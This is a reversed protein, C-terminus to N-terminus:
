VCFKVSEPYQIYLIDTKFFLLSSVFFLTSATQVSVCLGFQPAVGAHRVLVEKDLEKTFHGSLRRLHGLVVVVLMM